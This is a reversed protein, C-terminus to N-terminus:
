GGVAGAWVRAFLAELPHAAERVARSLFHYGPAHYPGRGLTDTGHYGIELRRGFVATPGIRAVTDDVTATVQSARGHRDGSALQEVLHAGATVATVTVAEVAVPFGLLTSALRSPSDFTIRASM